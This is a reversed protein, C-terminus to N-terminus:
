GRDVEEGAFEAITNTLCREFVLKLEEKGWGTKLAIEAYFNERLRKIFELMM